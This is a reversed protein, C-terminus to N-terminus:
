GQLAHLVQEQYGALSLELQTAESSLLSEKPEKDDEDELELDWRSLLDESLLVQKVKIGQSRFAQLVERKSGVAKKGIIGENLSLFHSSGSAKLQVTYDRLSLYDFFVEEIDSPLSPDIAFSDTHIRKCWGGLIEHCHGMTRHLRLIGKHVAQFTQPYAIKNISKYLLKHGGHGDPVAIAYRMQSSALAGILSMRLFKPLDFCLQNLRDLAGGDDTFGFDYDYILSDGSLISTLYASRIDFELLYPHYGTEVHTYHWHHGSRALSEFRPHAPSQKSDLGVVDKILWRALRGATAHEPDYGYQRCALRVQARLPSDPEWFTFVSNGRTIVTASAPSHAPFMQGGRKYLEDLAAGFGDETTIYNKM